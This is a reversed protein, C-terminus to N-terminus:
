LNITRPGNDDWTKGSATWHVAPYRASPEIRITEYGNPVTFRLIYSKKEGRLLGVSIGAVRTNADLGSVVLEGGGEISIDRSVKPINVSLIGRYEGEVFSPDYPGIVYSPLGMPAQDELTVVVSVETGGSVAKHTLDATVPLFQDLKNGSLNAVGLLLSNPSLRGSIGAGEWARQQKANSSWGLVHRGQSARRLQEVLEATDWETGDLKAVVARAVASSRERRAAQGLIFLSGDGNRAYDVYQTLLLEKIVNKSTITKGEVEVPGVVALLSKLAIPDLAIVGDVAEGTKAQWMKAALEANADFQPSMSLYRWEASPELWGWRAELDGEVPVLGEPLTLSATETMPGLDFRGDQMSMVGASLLMGSGIRMEANNAALVLYKSPGQSMAAIGTAADDVDAMGDRVDGLRASLEARADALPGVLANSPGLSITSLGSRAEHAVGGLQELLEVRDSGVRTPQDVLNSSKEMTTVGAGVVQAASSTLARVSRVQRGVMPLIQFPAIIPSGAADAAADLERQASRLEDLGDGRILEAPGFSRKAERLLDIGRTARKQAEFLQLGALATWLLVVALGGFLVFRTVRSRKARSVTDTETTSKSSSTEDPMHSSDYPKMM